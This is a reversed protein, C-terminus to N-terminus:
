RFIALSVVQSKEERTKSRKMPNSNNKSQANSNYKFHDHIQTARRCCDAWQGGRICNFRTTVAACHLSQQSGLQFLAGSCCLASCCLPLAAACFYSSCRLSCRQLVSHAAAPPPLQAVPGKDADPVCGLVGGRQQMCRPLSVGDSIDKRPWSCIGTDPSPPVYCLWGCM